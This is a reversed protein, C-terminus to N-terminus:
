RGALDVLNVMSTKATEQGKMNRSKQVLTIGVITHARSSTANMNTSAISRNTTGLDLQTEIDKYTTVLASSLGEAFFGKTPHERVKLGKKKSLGPNLLDRVIENYIELMSFRVEFEIKEGSHKSDVIGKFLDECFMPVIGKNVGYGVISWSKGSSTQGYAFLTSNYGEWANNLIGKGLDNFVTMQDCYKDGNPQAPDKVILGNELERFGDHSWYSHDFTFKKSEESPADPNNLFTMKDYMSIINKANRQRERQSFPRVRVAVKVNEVDPMKDRTSNFQKKQRSGM